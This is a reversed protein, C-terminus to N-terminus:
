CRTGHRKVSRCRVHHQQGAVTGPRTNINSAAVATAAAAKNATLAAVTILADMVIHHPPVAAVQPGSECARWLGFESWGHSTLSMARAIKDHSPSLAIRLKRGAAVPSRRAM